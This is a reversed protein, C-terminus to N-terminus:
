AVQQKPVLTVKAPLNEAFEVDVRLGNPLHFVVTEVQRGVSNEEAAVCECELTDEPIQLERAAFTRALATWFIDLQQNKGIGGIATYWAYSDCDIRAIGCFGHDIERAVFSPASSADAAFLYFGYQIGLSNLATEGAEPFAAVIAAKAKCKSINVATRYLDNAKGQLPDILSEIRKQSSHLHARVADEVGRVSRIGSAEDIVLPHGSLFTSHHIELCPKEGWYGCVGYEVSWITEEILAVLLQGLPTAALGSGVFHEMPINDIYSVIEIRKM